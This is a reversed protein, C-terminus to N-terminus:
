PLELVGDVECVFRDDMLACDFTSHDEMGEFRGTGAYYV